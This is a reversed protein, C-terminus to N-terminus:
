GGMEYAPRRSSSSDRQASSLYTREIMWPAFKVAELAGMLYEVAEKSRNQIEELKM